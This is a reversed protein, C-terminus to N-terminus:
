VIETSKEKENKETSAQNLWQSKEQPYRQKISIVWSDISGEINEDNPYPTAIQFMATVGSRVTFARGMPLEVDALSRPFKGNLRNVSNSNKLAIGFNPSTVVRRLSDQTNLISVSGAIIVYVGSTQYKRVLASLDDFFPTRNRSAEDSFFDYNDIFIVIKRRKPNNEFDSCEVQMNVLFHELEEVDAITDVVHPLNSLSTESGKWLKRSLDILVMIFEDPSYRLAFSIIM